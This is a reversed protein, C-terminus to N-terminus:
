RSDPCKEHQLDNGPSFYFDSWSNEFYEAAHSRERRPPSPLLSGSAVPAPAPGQATPRRGGDPGTLEVHSPAAPALPHQGRRPLAIKPHRAKPKPHHAKPKAHHKHSHSSAKHLHGASPTGEEVGQPRGERLGPRRDIGHGLRRIRRHDDLRRGPRRGFADGPQRREPAPQQDRRDCHLVRHRGRAIRHVLGPAHLRRGGPHRDPGHVHRHGPQGSGHRRHRGANRREGPRGDRQRQLGDRHQRLRGRRRRDPQLGPRRDRERAAALPQATVVLQSAAAPAVTFSGTTISPLGSSSVQLTYGGAAMDLALDSFTAIGQDVQVTLTGGLPAGAPGSALAIAVTGSYDTQVNGQSDELAVAVTFTSGATAPSTSSPGATIAIQSPTDLSTARGGAAPVVNFPDTIAPALAQSTAQLTYGNGVRSLTLGDFTAVGQAVAVTTVGVLRAGGPNAALAVTVSGVYGTEVNDYRDEVTVALGFPQGVTVSSPPQTTIVLQSAATPVVAFTGTTVSPLGSSTARLSDGQGAKDLTLDFTAVGGSVQVTTTGGLSSGAPGSALKVTVTGSYGTQVQGQQNEVAIEVVFPTGATVTSAPAGTIVLQYPSSIAVSFTGLTGTAVPNGALDTIPTGGLTVTDTGDDSASWSGDPPTFEYTVVFSRANGSPDTPGVPTTSVVSATIAAAGGPPTVQVVAGALTAAAIAANDTYTVTFQYPDTRRHLHRRGRDAHGDPGDHRRRCRAARRRHRHRAARDAPRRRAPRHPPRPTPGPTSRRARGGPPRHDVDARRQEGPRRRRAPSRGRRSQGLGHDQDPRPHGPDALRHRHPGRLLGGHWGRRVAHQRGPGHGRGQLVGGVAGAGTQTNLAVTSDFLSVTGGGVYFGAASGSGASGSSGSAGDGKGYSGGKGGPGGSGGKGGGVSDTAVTDQQLTLAAAPSTSAAASPMAATAASAASGAPRSGASPHAAGRRPRTSTTLAAGASISAIAPSSGGSGGTGGSGGIGSLGGAYAGAGGTGGSGGAGGRAANGSATDNLLTVTGAALYLGGGSGGGGGGGLGGTGGLPPPASSGGLSSGFGGGLSSGFGGSGGLGGLLAAMGAQGGRGGTGGQGGDAKDTGLTTTSLTLSGGGVYM